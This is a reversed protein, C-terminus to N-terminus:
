TSQRRPDSADLDFRPNSRMRWAKRIGLALLMAPLALEASLLIKGDILFLVALLAGGVAFLGAVGIFISLYVRTSRGEVSPNTTRSLGILAIYLGCIASFVYGFVIQREEGTHHGWAVIGIAVLVLLVQLM